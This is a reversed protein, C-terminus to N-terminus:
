AAPASSPDAVRWDQRAVVRAREAAVSSESWGLLQQMTNAAEDVVEPAPPGMLGLSTRRELVDTLALAMEETVAFHTAARVDTAVPEIPLPSDATDCTRVREDLVDAVQNVALEATHRSTTWKGGLASVLNRPGGFRDHRVVEARRSAKYTNKGSALLPRLGAYADRVDIDGAALSPLGQRLTDVLLDVEDSKVRLADPDDNFPTDTTGILSQGQWPVVFLHSGPMPLTLAHMGVVSRIVIHIGKSRQLRHSPEGDMAADLLVDSWPGAANVFTRGRVDFTDGSIACRVMASHLAGDAVNFSTVEAYNAVQAGHAAADQLCAIALREPSLMQADSYVLAGYMARGKLVPELERAEDSSVRRHGHMHESDPMGRNRDFSLGDYLSLGARLYLEERLSRTPLVFSLPRVLQPAIRLWARRERLSERVLTYQGTALYRLGGHVLRTTGSSTGSSFDRREVLAVSLGRRAADRAICVGTIGGGIVVVDFTTQALATLDRKM